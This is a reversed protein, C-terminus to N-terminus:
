GFRIRRTLNRRFKQEFVQALVIAKRRHHYPDEGEIPRAATTHSLPDVLDRAALRHADIRAHSIDM